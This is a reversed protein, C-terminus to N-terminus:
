GCRRGACPVRGRRFAPPTGGNQRDDLTPLVFGKKALFIPGPHGFCCLIGNDSARERARGPRLGARHLRRAEPPGFRCTQYRLRPSRQILLRLTLDVTHFGDRHNVPLRARDRNRNKEFATLAGEFFNTDVMTSGTPIWCTIGGGTFVFIKLVCYM